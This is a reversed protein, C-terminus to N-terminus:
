DRLDRRLHDRKTGLLALLGVALAIALAAAATGVSGAGGTGLLTGSLTKFQEALAFPSVAQQVLAFGAGQVPVAAVPNLLSVPLAATGLQPLVFTIVSWGVIPLLLASTERSSHVGSLMGFVVFILLFAWALGFFSVLRATDGAGLASRLILSISLWTLTAAMALVVGLWLAMGALKAGLHVAVDVPRSLILDTTRSRRSRLTSSVGLVIALLAGILIVYIVVNRVYSLPTAQAFPDPATTLGAAVTTQWVSTVTRHTLWGILSSVTVMGLFVVLLAQPMRERRASLVEHRVTAVFGSM